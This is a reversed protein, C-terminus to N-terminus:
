VFRLGSHMTHSGFLVCYVKGDFELPDVIAFDIDPNAPQPVAADVHREAVLHVAVLRGLVHLRYVLRNRPKLLGDRVKIRIRSVCFRKSGVHPLASPFPEKAWRFDARLHNARMASRGM